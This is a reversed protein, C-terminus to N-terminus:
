NMKVAGHRFSKWENVAASTLFNLLASVAFKRAIDIYEHKTLVNDIDEDTILQKLITLFTISNKEIVM